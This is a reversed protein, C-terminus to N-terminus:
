RTFNTNKKMIFIRRVAATTICGSKSFENEIFYSIQKM